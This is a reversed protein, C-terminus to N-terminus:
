NPDQHARSLIGLADIITPGGCNLMRSPFDVIRIKHSAAKMVPHSLIRDRSKANKATFLIGPPSALLPEMPLMDWQRLGYVSAANRYGALALMEDALTGKGPVMGGQWILATQLNGRHQAATANAMASAIRADIMKQAGSRGVRVAIDAIQQRSQAVTEPIPVQMLPIGIRELAASTQIPVPGTAIVLDPNQAIVEEINYSVSKFRNAIKLDISTAEPDQSYHSIAAIQDPSAVEMLIADICPSMSVIRTPVKTYVRKPPSASCANLSMATAVLAATKLKNKMNFVHESVPMHTADM